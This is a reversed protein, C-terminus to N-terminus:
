AEDEELWKLGLGTVRWVRGYGGGYATTLYGMSAAAAVGQANQRAFDSQVTMGENYARNLVDWLADALEETHTPGIPELVGSVM